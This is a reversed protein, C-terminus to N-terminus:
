PKNKGVVFAIVKKGGKHTKSLDNRVVIVNLDDGVSANTSCIPDEVIVQNGNFSIQYATFQFGAEDTMKFIGEVKATIVEFSGSPNKTSPVPGKVEQAKAWTSLCLCLAITPAFNM